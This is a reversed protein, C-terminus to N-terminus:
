KVKGAAVITMPTGDDEKIINGNRAQEDLYKALELAYHRVLSTSMGTLDVGVVQLYLKYKAETYNGFYYSSVTSTWWDPKVLQNHFWIVSVLREQEGKRFDNSEEIELVLRLPETDLISSYNLKIFATDVAQSAKFTFTEPVSYDASGATTFESNVSIRYQADKDSWGSAKVPLPWDIHDQGPYLYFSVSASDAETGVFSLFRETTLDQYTPIGEQSCSLASACALVTLIIHRKM